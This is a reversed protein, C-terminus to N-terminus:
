LFRERYLYENNTNITSNKLNFKNIMKIASVAIPTLMSAKDFGFESYTFATLSYTSHFPQKKQVSNRGFEM